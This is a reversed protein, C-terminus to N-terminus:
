NLNKLLTKTKEVKLYATTDQILRRLDHNDMRNAMMDVLSVQMLATQEMAKGIIRRHQEALDIESQKSHRYRSAQERFWSDGSGVAAYNRKDEVGIVGEVIEALYPLNGVVEKVSEMFTAAQYNELQTIDERTTEKVKQILQELRELEDEVITITEQLANRNKADRKYYLTDIKTVAFYSAVATVAAAVLAISLIGITIPGGVVAAAVGLVVTAAILGGVTATLAPYAALFGPENMQHQLFLVTQAMFEVQLQQTFEQRKEPTEFFSKLWTVAKYQEREAQIEQDKIKYIDKFAENFLVNLQQLFYVEVAINLAGDDIKTDKPLDLSVIFEERMSKNTKSNKLGLLLGERLHFLKVLNGALEDYKKDLGAKHMEEQFAEFSGAAEGQNANKWLMYTIYSVGAGLGVSAAGTLVNQVGAFPNIMGTLFGTKAAGFTLGGVGVGLLAALTGGGLKSATSLQEISGNLYDTTTRKQGYAVLAEAYTKIQKVQAGKIKGRSITDLQTLM